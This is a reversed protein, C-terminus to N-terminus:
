AAHADRSFITQQRDPGVSVVEVPRGVLESLRALYAAAKAPLESMTRAHSIESQWGPM